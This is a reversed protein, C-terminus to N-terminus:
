EGDSPFGRRTLDGHNAGRVGRLLIEESFQVGLQAVLEFFMWEITLRAGEVKPSGGSEQFV